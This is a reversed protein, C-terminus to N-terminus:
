PLHNDLRYTCYMSVKCLEVPKCLTFIMRCHVKEFSSERGGERKDRGRM